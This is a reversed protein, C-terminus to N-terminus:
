IYFEKKVNQIMKDYKYLFFLVGAIRTIVTSARVRGWM